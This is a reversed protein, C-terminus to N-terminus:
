EGAGLKRQLILATLVITHCQSIQHEMGKAICIHQLGIQCGIQHHAPTPMRNRADLVLVGLTDTVLHSQTFQIDAGATSRARHFARHFTGRDSM